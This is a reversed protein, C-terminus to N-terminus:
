IKATGLDIDTGESGRLFSGTKQDLAGNGVEGVAELDFGDKNQYRGIITWGKKGGLLELTGDRWFRYAITGELLSLYRHEQAMVAYEDCSEQTSTVANVVFTEDTLDSYEGSYNNCGTFGSITGTTSDLRLTVDGYKTIPTRGDLVMSAVWDVDLLAPGEREEFRAVTGEGDEYLELEQGRAGTSIKYMVTVEDRLLRLFAKEQKKLDHRRCGRRTTILEENELRFSTETLESYYGDYSNCGAFGNMGGGEKFRLTPRKEEEPTEVPVLSGEDYYSACVWETGLLASISPAAASTTTGDAAAGGAALLLVLASAASFVIQM